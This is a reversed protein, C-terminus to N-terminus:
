EQKDALCSHRDPSLIQITFCPNSNELIELEEVIHDFYTGRGPAFPSERLHLSHDPTGTRYSYPGLPRAYYPPHFPLAKPICIIKHSQTSTNYGMNYGRTCPYVIHTYLRRVLWFCWVQQNKSIMMNKNKMMRRHM